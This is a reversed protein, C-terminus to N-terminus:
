RRKRLHDEVAAANDAKVFVMQLSQASVLLELGNYHIIMERHGADGSNCSGNWQGAGAYSWNFTIEGGDKRWVGTGNPRILLTMKKSADGGDIGDIVKSVVAGGLGDIIKSTAGGSVDDMAKAVADIGLGDKLSSFGGGLGGKLKTVWIGVVERGTCDKKATALKQSYEFDVSTSCASLCFLVACAL